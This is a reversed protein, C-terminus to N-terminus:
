DERDYGWLEVLDRGLYESLARVEPAFRRRLEATLAEDVPQPRGYLLGRSARIAAGSVGTRAAAAKLSRALPGRAGQLRGLLRDARVSRVHVTPNARLPEVEVEEVQLFALVRRVVAVNDDRFDDYILTLVQERPFAAHFRRLQEVYRVRDTYRPLAGGPGPRDEQALARALDQETEIRNQILELQLSRLFSAPERLIAIIRADPRARAILRAADRSRLYSSSAEGVRQGPRAPAFLALYEEATEPLQPRPGHTHAAQSRARLDPSFWRPEKLHPMFIQPHRGLMEYLATTGSKPHGVIYFDPFAGAGRLGEAATAPRETSSTM